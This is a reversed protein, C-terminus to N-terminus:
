ARVEALLATDARVLVSTELLRHSNCLLKRLEKSNGRGLLHAARINRLSNALIDAVVVEVTDGVGLALHVTAKNTDVGREGLEKVHRGTLSKLEGPDLALNRGM